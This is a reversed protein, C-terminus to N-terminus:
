HDYHVTQWGKQCEKITCNVGPFVEHLTRAIHDWVDIKGRNTCGPSSFDCKLFKANDRYLEILFKTEDPSCNVKRTCKTCTESGGEM